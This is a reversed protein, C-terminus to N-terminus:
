GSAGHRVFDGLPISNRVLNGTLAIFDILRPRGHIPRLQRVAAAASQNLPAKTSAGARVM